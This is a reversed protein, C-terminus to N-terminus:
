RKEENEKMIGSSQIIKKMSEFILREVFEYNDFYSLFPKGSEGTIMLKKKYRKQIDVIPAIIMKLLAFSIAEDTNQPLRDFDINTKFEFQLKPSIQPYVMKLSDIGPLIFGGLHKKNEMVDVTIASGFDVIIGDDFLKCAVIRDIGLTSGYTTQLSCKEKLDISKPFKSKFAKTAVENVSIFYVEDDINALVDRDLNENVGIKLDNEGILFHFTSNGIDCLIM